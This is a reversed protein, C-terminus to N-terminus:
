SKLARKLNNEVFKWNVLEDMFTSTYDDRRYQYDLYYAHEWVDLTLLPTWKGSLPSDGNITQSIRMGGNELVLWVSGSGVLDNAKGTFEKKFSDYDGFSDEILHALKGRPRGGGKPTMCNWYFNHNWAQAANFLIAKREPNGVSELIIEELGKGQLETNDVLINTTRMYSHHHRSYHIIVTKASLHPELANQAYPLPPFAVMSAANITGPKVLVDSALVAAGLLSGTLFQRRNIRAFRTVASM